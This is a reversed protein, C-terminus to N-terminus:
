RFSASRIAAAPSSASRMWAAGFVKEAYWIGGIAFYALTAV